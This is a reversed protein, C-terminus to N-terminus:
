QNLYTAFANIDSESFNNFYQMYLVKEDKKEAIGEYNNEEYIAIEESIEVRIRKVEWKFVRNDKKEDDM